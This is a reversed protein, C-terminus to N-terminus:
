RDKRRSFGRAPLPTPKWSQRCENNENAILKCNIEENESFDGKSLTWFYM